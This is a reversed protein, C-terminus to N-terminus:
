GVPTIRRALRQKHLERHIAVAAKYGDAVALAISHLHAAADGAVYLGPVNTHQHGHTEISESDLTKCGIAHALASQQHQGAHLFLADLEVLTGNQLRVSELRGGSGGVVKEIPQDVVRVGQAALRAREENTLPAVGHTFLTVRESWALLAFAFESAGASTQLGGLNLDRREWGDCYPCCHVGNGLCDLLGPIQADEERLGTALLLKRAFWRRDDSILEFGDELRRVDQVRVTEIRVDYPALQELGLERLLAPSAGERSFFGHAHRSHRNRPQADDLVLVRERCRGLVLAASLGAPGAGVIVVDYARDNTQSKM